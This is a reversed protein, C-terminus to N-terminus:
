SVEHENAKKELSRPVIGNEPGFYNVATPQKLCRYVVLFFLAVFLYWITPHICDNHGVLLLFLFVGGAFVALAGFFVSAACALRWAPRYGFPIGVLATISWALHLFTVATPVTGSRGSLIYRIDLVLIVALYVVLLAIAAEAALLSIPM